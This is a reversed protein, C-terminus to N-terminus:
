SGKFISMPLRIGADVMKEYCKPRLGTATLKGIIKGAESIGEQKFTFLDQMTIVDGEMGTIETIYTIKRSHDRLRSQQVCLHVAGSIQDRIAKVPLDMGSMLVLTELRGLLERPSNAHITTLSGDHGTNMAQLMDLAEGSRCEGVVIRDPRMRLCNKVLDRITVEGAGEINPPRTELRVVHDQRLQLEAADEVTIIREDSPIFSSLINLTTTKGSGTGGAVIINMRATVAAQLFEAAERTLSGMNIMDAITFADKRFKRITLTPGNLALPPIIINVRSGDILRADVYPSKEDIRRGLPAVIRDCIQLVHQNDRFKKDVTILKGHREIYIQNPGNVMIESIEQDNLLPEIPGLGVIENFIDAILEGREARSLAVGEEAISMTVMQEIQQRLVDQRNHLVAQEDLETALRQQIRQKIQLYPGTAAAASAQEDKRRVLNFPNVSTNAGKDISITPGSQAIPPVKARVKGDGPLTKDMLPVKSDIRTDLLSAVKRIINMLHDQDRFTKGSPELKGFREVLVDDFANVTIKTVTPDTLLEELPGLGRIECTFESVLQARQDRTVELGQEQLATSILTDARTRIQQENSEEVMRPEIGSLVRDMVSHKIFYFSDKDDSTVLRPAHVSPGSGTSLGSGAGNAPAPAHSAREALDHPADGAAPTSAQKRAESVRELRDLLSM